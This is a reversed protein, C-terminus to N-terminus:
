PSGRWRVIRTGDELAAMEVGRMLLAHELARLTEPAAREFDSAKRELRDITPRSVGALDALESQSLGAAARATRLHAGDAIPMLSAEVGANQPKRQHLL